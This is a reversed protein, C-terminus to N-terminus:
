QCEAMEYFRARGTIHKVRQTFPLKPTIRGYAAWGPLFGMGESCKIEATKPSSLVIGTPKSCFPKMLHSKERKKLFNRMKRGAMWFRGRVATSRVLAQVQKRNLPM